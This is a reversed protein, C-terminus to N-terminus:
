RYVERRNGIRLVLVILERDQITYVVRWDGVRMRWHGRRGKLMKVGPPRPNDALVHLASLLRDLLSGTAADLMRQPQRELTVTYRM